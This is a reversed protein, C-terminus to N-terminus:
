ESLPLRFAVTRPSIYLVDGGLLDTYRVAPSASRDTHVVVTRFGDQRLQILDTLNWQPIPASGNAALTELAALFTNSNCYEKHGPPRTNPGTIGPGGLVPQGHFVQQTYSMTSQSLPVDIIGGPSQRAVTLYIEEAEFRSTNRMPPDIAAAGILFLVLGLGWALGNAVVPWRRGLDWLAGLTMAGALLLALLPAVMTRETVYCRVLPPIVMTALGFATPIVTGNLMVGHGLPFSVSALATLAWPLTRRWVLPVVLALVGLWLMAETLGTRQLASALEGLTRVNYNWGRIPIEFLWLDVVADPPRDLDPIFATADGFFLQKGLRWTPLLALGVASVTLAIGGPLIRRWRARDCALTLLVGMAGSLGVVIASFWYVYGAAALMAGAIIGDLVPKGDDQVMRLAHRLFLALFVLHVQTPRGQALEWQFFPNTIALTALGLAVPLPARAQRFLATCAMHSAALMLLLYLNYFREVGMWTLLPYATVADLWAFGQARGQDWGFPAFLGPEFTGLEGRLMRSVQHFTWLTGELDVGGGFNEAPGAPFLAMRVTEWPWRAGDAMRWLLPVFHLWATGLAVGVILLLQGHRRVLRYAWAAVGSAIRGARNPEM